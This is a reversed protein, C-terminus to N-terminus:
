LTGPWFGELNDIGDFVLFTAPSLWSSGISASCGLTIHYGPYSGITSGPGQIYVRFWWKVSVCVSSLVSATM